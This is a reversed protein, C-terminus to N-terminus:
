KIAIYDVCHDNNLNFVLDADAPLHRIMHRTLREYYMIFRKIDPLEMPQGDGANGRLQQEQRWRWDLVKQFSPVKIFVLRDLQAFVRQYAESELQRNVYSRWVAKEDEEAELANVAQQLQDQAQPRAGLCWGEVILVEVPSSVARKEKRRDDTAKDFVPLSATKGLKMAAIVDAMLKMDHTGPVGRTRLLPHVKKALREREQKTFYFDDISLVLASVNNVSLMLALQHALTSKGTGQAGAVGLVTMGTKSRWQELWNLMGAVVEFQQEGEKASLGQLHQFFFKRHRGSLRTNYPAPWLM